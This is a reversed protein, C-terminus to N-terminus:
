KLGLKNQFYPITKALGDALSTTPEWDLVQKARTLDPHRRKPDDPLAPLHVIKSKSGTAKQVAEAFELMTREEQTGINVPEHFESMALRYVGDLIDEFYGFSRTQSGDGYITIDEGLLAQRVFNPVVRGDDLRM